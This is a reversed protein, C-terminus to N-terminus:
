KVNQFNTGKLKKITLFLKLYGLKRYALLTGIPSGFIFFDAVEFHLSVDNTSESIRPSHSSTSLRSFIHEFKFHNDLYQSVM